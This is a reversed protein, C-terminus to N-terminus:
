NQEYKKLWNGKKYYLFLWLASAIWTIPWGLFVVGIDHFLPVSILIWAMRLGCWCCVMVVMPITTVGAGRIIGSLAHSIALFIYGPALVHMMYLGYEIVRQDQSFIALVNPGLLLLLITICITTLISMIMGTKAGKKVRDYKQAGINQGTFTTLAMSYSMVPLIAFGDIKTYSGCGAMALSGFANINSQVIVNSFSVIANQVASPLGLRIIEYVMHKHLRIHRFNVRYEAKTRILLALTLLASVTQAILTAWGVGAVGMHFYVVFVYDLIVNIISSVILFYLPNKSDGVARLIGSGMNYTMVSLIGLFYIRLYLVSSSMVDDPTGVWQLIYPSLLVGIFTMAIGAIFTIALSTHIAEQLGDINRAGYYRSIIIGAGISLGMFFSILLNIVPASSGVAALAQSGIYNGVIISDVANYLQQFLNGLLLPISFLFIQKWIVGDIMLGKQKLSESSM